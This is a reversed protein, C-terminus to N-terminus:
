GDRALVDLALSAVRDLILVGDLHDIEHLIARAEFGAAEITRRRGNPDTAEVRVREPRRVNAIIEPLSLCGERGKRNGSRGVIVPDILWIPGQADPVRPHGTCDVFAIRWLEGVQPAALGVTRPHAAATAMLDAALRRAAAGPRGVPTCPTKLRRDPYHVM